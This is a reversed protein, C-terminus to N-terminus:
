GMGMFNIKNGDVKINCQLLNIIVKVMFNIILFIVKIHATLPLTHSLVMDQKLMM